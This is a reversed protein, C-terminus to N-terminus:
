MTTKENMLNYGKSPISYGVFRVKEANKNLKSHWSDPIHAPESQRDSMREPTRRFTLEFTLEHRIGKTKLYSKFEDSDYEGGSDSRFASITRGVDNTVLAEFEM